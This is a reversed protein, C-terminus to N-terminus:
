FQGHPDDKHKFSPRLGQESQHLSCRALESAERTGGRSTEKKPISPRNSRTAPGAAIPIRTMVLLNFTLECPECHWLGGRRPTAPRDCIPCSCSHLTACRSSMSVSRGTPAIQRGKHKARCSAAHCGLRLASSFLRSDPSGSYRGRQRDQSRGGSSSRPNRSCRRDSGMKESGNIVRQFCFFAAACRGM